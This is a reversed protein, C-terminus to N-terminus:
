KSHAQENCFKCGLFCGKFGIPGIIEALPFMRKDIGGNKHSVIFLYGSGGKTYFITLHAAYCHRNGAFFSGAQRAVHLMVHGAPIDVWRKDVKKGIITHGFYGLRLPVIVRLHFGVDFSGKTPVLGYAGIKM